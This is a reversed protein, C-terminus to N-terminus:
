AILAELLALTLRKTELQPASEELVPGVCGPCGQECPCRRVIGLAAALLTEHLQYLQRNFGLGAPIREYLYITPSLGTPQEEEAGRSGAPAPREEAVYFDVEGIQFVPSAPRPRRAQV